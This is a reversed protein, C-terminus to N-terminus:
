TIYYEDPLIVDGQGICTMLNEWSIKYFGKRYKKRKYKYYEHHSDVIWVGKDDYGNAVVAHEVYDGNITDINGSENEKSFEMFMTWNFTLIVPKKKSLYKRIYKGFNYTIKINNKYGPQKYWKYICKLSEKFEEDKKNEAAMKLHETMKRKGYHSYSYDFAELNSSVLTVEKFGLLNLLHCIEGSDLGVEAVNKAIKKYTIEKVKEYDITSNYYNAIVSCAAVACHAPDQLYRSVKLRKM